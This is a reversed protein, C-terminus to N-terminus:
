ISVTKNLGKRNILFPLHTFSEPFNRLNYLSVSSCCTYVVIHCIIITLTYLHTFICLTRITDRHQNFNQKFVTGCKKLPM